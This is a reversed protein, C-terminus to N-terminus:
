QGNEQARALWPQPTRQAMALRLSGPTPVQTEGESSSGPLSRQGLCRCAQLQTAAAKPEPKPKLDKAAQQPTLDARVQPWCIRGGATTATVPSARGGLGLDERQGRSPGPAPKTGPTLSCALTRAHSVEHGESVQGGGNMLGVSQGTGHPAAHGCRQPSDLLEVEAMRTSVGVEIARHERTMRRHAAGVGAGQSEGPVSQSSLAGAPRSPSVASIRSREAPRRAAEQRQTM